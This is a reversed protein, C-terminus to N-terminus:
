LEKIMEQYEKMVDKLLEEDDLVEMASECLEECHFTFPLIWKDGAAKKIRALEEKDVSDSWIFCCQTDGDALRHPVKLDFNGAFGECIAKDIYRCYYTGYEKLGYKEWTDFWACKHVFSSMADEDYVMVSENEGPKGKWEGHLMFSKLDKEEDNMLALRAMRKGRKHGYLVTIKEILEEAKKRDFKEFIKRTLLAYILAHDRIEMFLFILAASM